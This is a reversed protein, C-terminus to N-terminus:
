SGGGKGVGEKEDRSEEDKQSLAAIEDDVSEIESVLESRRSEYHTKLDKDAVRIKREADKLRKLLEGRKKNLEIYRNADKRKMKKATSGKPYRLLSPHLKGLIPYGGRYWGAVFFVLALSLLSAWIYPADFYGKGTQPNIGLSALVIGDLITLVISMGMGLAIQYLLGYEPDLEEKRPFLARIFTFGPVFFIMLLGIIAVLIELVM